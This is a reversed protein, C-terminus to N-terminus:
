EDEGASRPQAWLGLRWDTPRSRLAREYESEAREYQGTKGLVEALNYHGEFGAPDIAIAREFERQADEVRDLRLYATGLNNHASANSPDAAVSAELYKVAADLEGLALAVLGRWQLILPNGPLVQLLEEIIAKAQGYAGERYLTDVRELKTQLERDGQALCACCLVLAACVLLGAVHSRM